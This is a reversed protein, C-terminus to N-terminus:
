ESDPLKDGDGKRVFEEVVENGVAAIWAGKSLETRYKLDEESMPVDVAEANTPIFEIRSYGPKYESHKTNLVQKIEHAIQMLYYDNRAPMNWQADLWAILTKHSRHSHTRLYESLPM